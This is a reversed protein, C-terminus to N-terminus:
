YAHEQKPKRRLRAKQPLPKEKSICTRALTEKRVDMKRRSSSASRRITINATMAKRVIAALTSTAYAETKRALPLGEVYRLIPLKANAKEKAKALLDALLTPDRPPVETEKLLGPVKERAKAAMDVKKEAAATRDAEEKRAARREKEAVKRIPQM